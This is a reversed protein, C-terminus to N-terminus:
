DEVTLWAKVLKAVEEPSQDVYADIEQSVKEREIDEQSKMKMQALKMAAENERRIQDSMIDLTDMGPVPGEDGVAEGEALVEQRKRRFVLLLILSLLVGAAVLGIQVYRWLREQRLAEEREAQAQQLATKDFPLVVVELLDGRDMDIGAAAEAAIQIAETQAESVTDADAM